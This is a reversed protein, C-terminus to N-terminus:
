GESLKSWIGFEEENWLGFLSMVDKILNKEENVADFDIDVKKFGGGCIRTAEKACFVCFKDRGNRVNEMIELKDLAECNIRIKRNRIEKGCKPCFKYSNDKELLCKCGQTREEKYLIKEVKESPVRLGLVVFSSSSSNSVFGCRIKM